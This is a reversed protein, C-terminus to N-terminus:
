KPQPTHLLVAPKGKLCPDHHQTCFIRHNNQNTYTLTTCTEWCFMPPPNTRIDHLNQKIIIKITILTFSIQNEYKM